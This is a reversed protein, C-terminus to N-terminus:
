STIAKLSCNLKDHIFLPVSYYLMCIQLATESINIIFVFIYRASKSAGNKDMKIRFLLYARKFYDKSQLECHLTLECRNATKNMM